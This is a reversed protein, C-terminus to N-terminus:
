LCFMWSSRDSHIVEATKCVLLVPNWFTVSAMKGRLSMGEILGLPLGATCGAVTVVGAVEAVVVNGVLSTGEGCSIPVGDQLLLLLLLLLPEVLMPRVSLLAARCSDPERHISTMWGLKLARSASTLAVILSQLCFCAAVQLLLLLLLLEGLVLLGAQGERKCLLCTLLRASSSGRLNDMELQSSTHPM